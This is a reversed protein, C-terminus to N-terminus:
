KSLSHLLVAVQTVIIYDQLSHLNHRYLSLISVTSCETRYTKIKGSEQISQLFPSFYWLMLIWVEYLAKPLPFYISVLWCPLNLLEQVLLFTSCSLLAQPEDQYPSHTGRIKKIIPPFCVAKVVGYQNSSFQKEMLLRSTRWQAETTKQIHHGVANLYYLIIKTMRVCCVIWCLLTLLHFIRHPNYQASFDTM